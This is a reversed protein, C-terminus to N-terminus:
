YPPSCIGSTPADCNTPADCYEIKYFWWIMKHLIKLLMKVYWFLSVLIWHFLALAFSDSFSFLTILFLLAVYAPFGVTIYTVVTQCSLCTLAMGRAIASILPTSVCCMEGCTRLCVIVFLLWFHILVMDLIRVDVHTRLLQSFWMYWM